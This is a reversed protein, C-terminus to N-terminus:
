RELFERVYQNFLKPQEMMLVHGCHDLFYNTLLAIPKTAAPHTLNYLLEVLIKLVSAGSVMYYRVFRIRQSRQPERM